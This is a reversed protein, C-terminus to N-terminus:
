AAGEDIAYGMARLAECVKRIAAPDNLHEPQPASVNVGTTIRLRLSLARIANPELDRALAPVVDAMTVVRHL